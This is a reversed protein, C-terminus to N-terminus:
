FIGGVKRFASREPLGGIYFGGVSRAALLAQLAAGYPTTMLWWQWQNKLPPPTLGVSIKDITSTQVLGPTQGAAILVSLALLHATMYNIALRRCDGALWGCNLDSVYCTAMDWYMEITNDPYTTANAFAPMQERFIDVDFLIIPESM